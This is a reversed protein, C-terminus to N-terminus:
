NRGIGGKPTYHNGRKVRRISDRPSYDDDQVQARPKYFRDAESLVRTEYRSRVPAAFTLALADGCNPSPLGRKEMDEKSELRLKNDNTRIEYTPAVVDAILEQDQPISVVSRFWESMNAWMEARKNLYHGQASPKSGFQVEEVVNQYNWNQLISIVGPNFGGDIFVADPKFEEIESAIKTALPMTDIGRRQWLKFVVPGQRKCIVSADGHISRGIDVGMIKPLDIYAERALIRGAARTVLDFPILTNDSSATFDCLFEQRFLNESMTARALEIEAEPLAKTREIDFLDAYWGDLKLANFYLESFKNVGKPTGIFVIWGERDALAPRIIEEWVNPKMQAMEDMVVGDFYLGRLSDPDDAGYITIRAGNPLQVYLESENVIVGPIPRTYHKLYDWAIAKAQKRLPAIYAYRPSKRKCTLSKKLLHNIVAVTKGMRRHAVVISFRHTEINAHMELQPDRPKYPIEIVEAVGAM